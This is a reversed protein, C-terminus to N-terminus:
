GVARLVARDFEAGKQELEAESRGVRRQLARLQEALMALEHVRVQPVTVEAGGAARYASVLQALGDALGFPLRRGRTLVALDAAPDGLSAFEWDILGPPENGFLDRLVNQGLLDGHLLVAPLSDRQGPVADPLHETAWAAALDASPRGLERLAALAEEAHARRTRQGGFWTWESAIDALPLGHVGAAVQALLELHEAPQPKGSVPQVPWGIVQSYVAVPGEGGDLLGIPKPARFPLALGQLRTLLAFERRARAPYDHDADRKPVLVVASELLAGQPRSAELHALYGSRSLGGGLWLLRDFTVSGPAFRQDLVRRLAQRARLLDPHFHRKSM